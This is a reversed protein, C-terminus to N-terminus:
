VSSRVRRGALIDTGAKLSAPVCAPRGAGEDFGEVHLPIASIWTAPDASCLDPLAAPVMLSAVNLEGYFGAVQLDESMFGVAYRGNDIQESSRQVEERARSTNAFVTVLGALVILGLTISIMLEVLSFGASRRIMADRM